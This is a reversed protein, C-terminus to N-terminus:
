LSLGKLFPSKEEIKSYIGILLLPLFVAAEREFKDMVRIFELNFSASVKLRKLLVASVNGLGVM